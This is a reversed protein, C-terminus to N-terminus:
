AVSKMEGALGNSSSIGEKSCESVSPGFCLLSLRLKFM